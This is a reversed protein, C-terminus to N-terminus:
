ERNRQLQTYLLLQQALTRPAPACDGKEFVIFFFVFLQWVGWFVLFCQSIHYNKKKILYGEQSQLVNRVGPISILFGLHNWYTTLM